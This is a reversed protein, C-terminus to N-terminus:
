FTQRHIRLRIACYTSRQVQWRSTAPEFWPREAIM